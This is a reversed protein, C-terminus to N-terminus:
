YGYKDILCFSVDSLRSDRVGTWYLKWQSKAFNFRRTRPKLGCERIHRCWLRYGIRPIYAIPDPGDPNV